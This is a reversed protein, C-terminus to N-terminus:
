IKTADIGMMHLIDDILDSRIDVRIDDIPITADYPTRITTRYSSVHEYEDTEEIHVLDDVQSTNLLAYGCGDKKPQGNQQNAREKSVRLFHANLSRNREVEAELFEKEETLEETKEKEAQYETELEKYKEDFEQQRENITNEAEKSFYDFNKILDENYQYEKNDLERRADAADKLAKRLRMTDRDYDAITQIIYDANDESTPRYVGGAMKKAYIYSM